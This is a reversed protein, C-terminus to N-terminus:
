NRQPQRQGCTGKILLNLPNVLSLLLLCLLFLNVSIPAFPGSAIWTFIAYQLFLVIGATTFVIGYFVGFYKRPYVDVIFSWTLAFVCQKYIVFLVFLAYLIEEAKIFQLGVTVAGLLTTMTIPFVAPLLQRHYGKHEKFAMRQCDYLFGGVVAFIAACMLSFSFVDTFHNVKGTDRQLVRELMANSIGIFTLLYFDNVVFWFLHFMFTRNFVCSRLTPTVEEVVASPLMPSDMDHRPSTPPSGNALTLEEVQEKGDMVAPPKEGAVLPRFQQSENATVDNEKVPVTLEQVPHPSVRFFLVSNATVFVVNLATLLIYSHQRPIGNEFAVKILWQTTSASYYFGTLLSVAVSSGRDFLFPVVQLNAANICVAGFAMSLLGPCIIWPANNDVFALMLTGMCFTVSGIFRLVLPGFRYLIWGIVSTAISLVSVAITFWLNLVADQEKCSAPPRRDGDSVDVGDETDQINYSPYALSKNGSYLTHPEVESNRISMHELSNSVNSGISGNAAPHNCLFHYIGEQKFVYVLSAWGFFLGGFLLSEVICWLAAVFRFRVVFALSTDAM